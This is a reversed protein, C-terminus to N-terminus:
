SGKKVPLRRKVGHQQYSLRLAAATEASLFRSVLSYLIGAYEPGHPAHKNWGYILDAAQHAIEHLLVWRNRQAAIITIVPRGVYSASRGRGRGDKVQIRVAKGVYDRWWASTAVRDVYDQCVAVSARPPLAGPLKDVDHFPRQAAYLKSRQNDRPLGSLNVGPTRSRRRPRRTPRRTGDIVGLRLLESLGSVV